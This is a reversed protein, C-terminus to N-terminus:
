ALPEYVLLVNGNDFARTTKLKLKLRDKIGAFMTKGQGLVVPIVAIQFEDILGEQALQSIISGSGLIAMDPGSDKKLKRIEGAMDDRVLRTNNWSAERLTKSFVIKPMENMRGAVEPMQERAAPTPWFSAMLEYTVRGLVLRGGGSANSAVFQNWEPDERHAWSMDGQIDCIFGDLSVQNFVVLRGM